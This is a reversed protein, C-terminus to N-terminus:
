YFKFQVPGGGDDKPLIKDIKRCTNKTLPNNFDMQNFFWKSYIKKLTESVNNFSETEKFLENILKKNNKAHSYQENYQSYGNRAFEEIYNYQRANEDSQDRQYKQEM